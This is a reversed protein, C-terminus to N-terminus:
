RQPISVHWGIVRVPTGPTRGNRRIPLCDPVRVVIVFVRQLEHRQAGLRPSFPLKLLPVTNQTGIAPIYRPHLPPIHSFCVPRTPYVLYGGVGGTVEVDAEHAFGPGARGM